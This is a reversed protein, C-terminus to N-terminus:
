WGLEMAEDEGDDPQEVGGDGGTAFGGLAYGTDPYFELSVDVM